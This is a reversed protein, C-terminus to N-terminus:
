IYAALFPRRRGTRDAVASFALAGFTALRTIALVQSMEGETLDMAQRSFPLTATAQAQAFGQAIGAAWMMFAVRRDSDTFRQLPMVRRLLRRM